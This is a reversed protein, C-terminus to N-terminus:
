SAHAVYRHVSTPQEAMAGASPLYRVVREDLTREELWGTLLEPAMPKSMFYGQAM